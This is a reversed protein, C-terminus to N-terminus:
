KAKNLKTDRATNFSLRKTIIITQKKKVEIDSYLAYKRLNLFLQRIVSLIEM